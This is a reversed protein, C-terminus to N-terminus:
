LLYGSKKLWWTVCQTPVLGYMVLPVTKLPWYAKITKQRLSTDATWCVTVPFVHYNVCCVWLPKLRHKWHTHIDSVSAGRGLQTCIVRLYVFTRVFPLKCTKMTVFFHAFFDWMKWFVVGSEGVFSGPFNAASYRSFIRKVFVMCVRHSPVIIDPFHESITWSYRPHGQQQLPQHQALLSMGHGQLKLKYIMFIRNINQFVYTRKASGIFFKQRM